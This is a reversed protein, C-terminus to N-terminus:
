WDFSSFRSKTDIILKPLLTNINVTYIKASENSFNTADTIRYVIKSNSVWGYNDPTENQLTKTLQTEKKASFDYIFLNVIASGPEQKSYVMKSGDPSWQYEASASYQNLSGQSIYEVLSSGDSNLVGIKEPDVGKMYYAVLIKSGDPSFRINNPYLLENGEMIAFPTKTGTPATKMIKTLVLSNDNSPRNLYIIEGKKSWQPLYNRDTDNSILKNGTGDINSIYISSKFITGKENIYQKEYIIKKGNPAWQVNAYHENGSNKYVITKKTGSNIDYFAIGGELYQLYAFKTRDPSWRPERGETVQKPKSQADLVYIYPTGPKDLKGEFVLLRSTAAFSRYVFYIGGGIAFVLAFLAIGGKLTKPNFFGVLKKLKSQKKNVPM